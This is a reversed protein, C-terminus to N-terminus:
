RGKNGEVHFRERAAKLEARLRRIEKNSSAEIHTIKIM